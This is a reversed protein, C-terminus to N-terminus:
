RPKSLLITALNFDKKKVIFKNTSLAQITFKKPIKLRKGWSDLMTKFMKKM